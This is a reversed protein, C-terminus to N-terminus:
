AHFLAALYLSLFGLLFLLAVRASDWSPQPSHTFLPKSLRVAAYISTGLGLAFVFSTGYGLTYDTAGGLIGPAIFVLMLLLVDRLLGASSKAHGRAYVGYAAGVMVPELAKHLIFALAASTGGFASLLDTAPTAAATAVVSAGEGMGHVGVALALLLPIGFGSDVSEPTSSFVARDLSFVLLLGAAFLLILAAQETGGAFGSNVDLYATDGITDSFFWFYIGLAFAALYRPSIVRSVDVAVLLGVFAPLILAAAVALFAQSFPIV